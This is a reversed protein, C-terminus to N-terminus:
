KGGKIFSNKIVDLVIDYKKILYSSSYSAAISEYTNEDIKKLAIYPKHIHNLNIIISM